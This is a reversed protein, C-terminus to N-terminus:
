APETRALQGPNFPLITDAIGFRQSNRRASGRPGFRIKPHQQGALPAPYLDDALQPDVGHILYALRAVVSKPRDRLEADLEVRDALSVLDHLAEAAVTWPEIDSPHVAAHVLVTAPSHVPVDAIRLPAVQSEFRTVHAAKALSSSVHDHPGVVLHLRTPPRDLLRHAWMASTGAVALSLSPNSAAAARVTLWPDGHGIPGAHAGPAFEFVGRIATPLLWGLKRLRDAILRPDSRVRAASALRALDVITIVTPQEKELETLIPALSSPIARTM